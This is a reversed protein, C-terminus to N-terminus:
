IPEYARFDNLQNTLGLNALTQVNDQHSKSVNDLRIDVKEGDDFKDLGMALVLVSAMQERTINADPNFNGNEDGSFVNAETLMAIEKAYLSERNVDHYVELTESINEPEVFNGVKSLIVAMHQRSIHEWPKFKNSEYGRLVDQETLAKIGEYHVNDETVDDYGDWEAASVATIGVLAVIFTILFSISIKNWLRKSM